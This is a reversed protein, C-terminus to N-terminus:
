NVEVDVTVLLDEIKCDLIDSLQLLHQVDPLSRRKPSVWAYVSQVAVLGLLHQIDRMTYGKELIMKGIKRGTADMDIVRRIM